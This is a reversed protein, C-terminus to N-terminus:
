LGLHSKLNTFWTKVLEVDHQWITETAAIKADIATKAAAYDAEIKAKEANLSELLTM